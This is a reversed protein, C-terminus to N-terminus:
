SQSISLVNGFPDSFWAVRAAGDPATWIGDEDQGMGVYTTFAVGRDRLARVTATIDAVDWGVVPHQGAEFDPMPTVRLLGGGTEYFDGFDDRSRHRLGLLDVYFTRAEDRDRVTVFSVPKASALTM